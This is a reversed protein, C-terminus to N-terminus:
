ALSFATNMGRAVAMAPAPITVEIWTIFSAGFCRVPRGVGGLAQPETREARSRKESQSILRNRGRPPKPLKRATQYPRKQGSDMGLLGRRESKPGALPSERLFSLPTKVIFEVSPSTIAAPASATM